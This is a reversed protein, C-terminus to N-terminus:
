ALFRGITLQVNTNGNRGLRFEQKLTKPFNQCVSNYSENYRRKAVTECKRSVSKRKLHFKYKTDNM